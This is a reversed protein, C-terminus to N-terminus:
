ECIFVKFDMYTLSQYIIESVCSVHSFNKKIYTGHMKFITRIEVLLACYIYKNIKVININYDSRSTKICKHWGWRNGFNYM